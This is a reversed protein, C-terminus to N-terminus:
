EKHKLIFRCDKEIINNTKRTAITDFSIKFDPNKESFNKIFEKIKEDSVNCLNIIILQYTDEVDYTRLAGTTHHGASNLKNPDIKFNSLLESYLKQSYNAVKTDDVEIMVRRYDYPNSDVPAYGDIPPRPWQGMNIPDRNKPIYMMNVCRREKQFAKNELRVKNYMIYMIFAM